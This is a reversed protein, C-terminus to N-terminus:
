GEEDILVVTFADAHELLARAVLSCTYHAVDGAIVVFRQPRREAAEHRLCREHAVHVQEEFTLCILDQNGAYRRVERPEGRGLDFVEVEVLQCEHGSAPAAM